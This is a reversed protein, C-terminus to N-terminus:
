EAILGLKRATERIADYDANTAEVFTERPFSALIEPDDLELLATQLRDIFDAGFRETVDGRVTWNYDPYAPTKWIVKVKDTDVKGNAVQEDWVTYNVAGVEYAGSEVVDITLHHAGSFGVRDFVEKPPQGFGQQIYHQPMLRGSTSSKSGFTFTKGRVAEPLQDESREIGTSHHAIFYSHFKQDRKGQAIARADPVAQRARVGSLGGFWALQVQNNRFATVAAAYSKVPIYRVNIDLEGALYDAVKDFRERLQTQNQGPIATFYLTQAMAAPAALIAALFCGGAAARKLLHAPM